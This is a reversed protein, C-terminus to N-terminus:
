SSERNKTPLPISSNERARVADPYLWTSTSHM